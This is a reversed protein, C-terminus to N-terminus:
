GLELGRVYGCENELVVLKLLSLNCVCCSDVTKVLVHVDYSLCNGVRQRCGGSEKALNIVCVPKLHDVGSVCGSHEVLRDGGLSTWIVVPKLPQNLHLLFINYRGFLCIVSLCPRALWSVARAATLGM